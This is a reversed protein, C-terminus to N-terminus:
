YFRTTLNECSCSILRTWGPPVSPGVLPWHPAHAYGNPPYVKKEEKKGKTGIEVQRTDRKAVVAEKLEPVKEKVDGSSEKGDAEKEAVAEVADEVEAVSETLAGDGNESNTVAKEPAGNEHTDGNPLLKLSPSASSPSTPYLYRCRFSLQVISSPTM